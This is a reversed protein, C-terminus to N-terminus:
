PLIGRTQAPAVPGFNVMSIHWPTQPDIDTFFYLDNPSQAMRRWAELGPRAGAAVKAIFSSLSVGAAPTKPRYVRGRYVWFGDRPRIGASALARKWAARAAITRPWAPLSQRRIVSQSVFYQMTRKSLDAHTESRSAHLAVDCPLGFWRRPSDTLPLPPVPDPSGLNLRSSFFSGYGNFQRRVALSGPAQRITWSFHHYTQTLSHRMAFIAGYTALTLLAALTIVTRGPSFEALRVLVVGIVSFLPVLLAIDALAPPPPVARRQIGRGRRTLLPAHRLAGFEPPAIWVGSAPTPRAWPVSQSKAPPHLGAYILKIGCALLSEVRDASLQSALGPDVWLADCTAFVLPPEDLIQNYSARMYVIRVDGLPAFYSPNPAAVSNRILVRLVPPGPPPRAVDVVNVTPTTDQTSLIVRVPWRGAPLASGGVFPLPLLVVHRGAGYVQRTFGPGGRADRVTVYVWNLAPPIRLGVRLTQWSDDRPAANIALTVRRAAYAPAAALLIWVLVALVQAPIRAPKTPRSHVRGLGPLRGARPVTGAFLTELRNLCM